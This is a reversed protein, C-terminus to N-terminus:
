NIKKYEWNLNDFILAVKGMNYNELDDKAIKIESKNNIINLIVKCIGQHTVILINKETKYYKNIIYKFVKKVRIELKKEDEPYTLYSAKIIPIYTPNYNFNEQLYDPLEVNFSKPPIITPHLIESLGYDINIKMNHKKSFPYITQLTRIFPSCFIDTIKLLDLIPILNSANILGKKTLPGFFSADITRDEHRLIYIKM